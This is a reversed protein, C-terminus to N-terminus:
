MVIVRCLSRLGRDGIQFALSFLVLSFSCWRDSHERSWLRTGAKEATKASYRIPWLRIQAKFIARIWDISQCDKCFVISCWRFTRKNVKIRCSILRRVSWPKFLDCMSAAALPNATHVLLAHMRAVCRVWVVLMVIDVDSFLHQRTYKHLCRAHTRAHVSPNSFQVNVYLRSWEINKTLTRKFYMPITYFAHTRTHVPTHIPPSSVCISDEKNSAALYISQRFHVHVSSTYVHALAQTATHAHTRSTTAINRGSCGRGM